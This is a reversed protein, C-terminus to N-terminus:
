VGSHLLPRHDHCLTRQELGEVEQQGHLTVQTWPVGLYWGDVDVEVHVM